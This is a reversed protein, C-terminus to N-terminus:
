RDGKEDICKKSMYYKTVTSMFIALNTLISYSGIWFEQINGIKQYSLM